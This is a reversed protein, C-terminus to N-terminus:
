RCTLFSHGNLSAPILNNWVKKDEDKDPKKKSEESSFAGNFQRSIPRRETSQYYEDGGDAQIGTESHSAHLISPLSWRHFLAPAKFPFSHPWSSTSFSSFRRKSAVSMIAYLHRPSSLLDHCCFVCSTSPGAQADRLLPSSSSLSNSGVKSEKRENSGTARKERRSLFRNIGSISGQM